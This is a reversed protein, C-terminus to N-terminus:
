AKEEKFRRVTIVSDPCFRACQGCAICKDMETITAPNYGKHNTTTKDLFIIKVPCVNVCLGCGKCYYQDFTTLGKM